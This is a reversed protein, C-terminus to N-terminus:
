VTSFVHIISESDYIEHSRIKINNIIIELAANVFVVNNELEIFRFNICDRLKKLHAFTNLQMVVCPLNEIKRKKNPREDIADQNCSPTCSGDDTDWHQSEYEYRCSAFNPQRIEPSQTVSVAKASYCTMM